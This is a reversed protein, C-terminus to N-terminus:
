QEKSYVLEGAIYTRIVNLSKDLFIFDADSGYDLTGKRETIRLCQAPHLTAAALAEEVPCGTAKLFHKVCYPM